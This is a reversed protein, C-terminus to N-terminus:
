CSYSRILILLLPYLTFKAPIAHKIKQMFMAHNNHANNLVCMCERLQLQYFAHTKKTLFYLIESVHLMKDIVFTKEILLAKKILLMENIFMAESNLLMKKIFLMKSIHLTEWHPTKKNIRLMISILPMKHTILMKPSLLTKRIPLM